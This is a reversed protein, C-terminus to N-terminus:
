TYSERLIPRLNGEFAYFIGSIDSLLKKLHITM